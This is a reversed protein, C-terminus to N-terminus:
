VHLLLFSIRKSVSNVLHDSRSHTTYLSDHIKSDWYASPHRSLVYWCSASHLTDRATLWLRQLQQPARQHVFMGELRGSFSRRDLQTHTHIHTHTHTHTHRLSSRPFLRRILAIFSFYVCMFVYFLGPKFYPIHDPYLESNEINNYCEAASRNDACVWLSGQYASRM